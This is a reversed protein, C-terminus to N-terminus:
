SFKLEKELIPIPPEEYFYLDMWYQFSGCFLFKEAM